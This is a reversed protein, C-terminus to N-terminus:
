GETKRKFTLWCIKQKESRSSNGSKPAYEAEPIGVRTFFVDESLSCDYQFNGKRGQGSFESRVLPLWREHFESIAADNALAILEYDHKNKIQISRELRKLHREVM